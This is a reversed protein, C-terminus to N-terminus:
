YLYILQNYNKIEKEYIYNLRRYAKIKQNTHEVKIRKKYLQEKSENLKRKKMENKTNINNPKIISKKFIVKNLEYIYSSDYGSDAMFISNIFEKKEDENLSKIQNQYITSDHYNGGEILCNLTIGNSETILSIKIIKKNKFYANRKAKDKNLKNYVTTTDTYVYELKKKKSKKLYKKLNDLYSLEFIKYKNLKIYNKYITNYNINKYIFNKWSSSIKIFFLIAELIEKLKYKQTHYKFNYTEFLKIHKTKIFNYISNVVISNM